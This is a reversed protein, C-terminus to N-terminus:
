ITYIGLVYEPSWVLQAKAHINEIGIVIYIMNHWSFVLHAFPTELICDIGGQPVRQTWDYTPLIIYCVVLPGIHILCHVNM